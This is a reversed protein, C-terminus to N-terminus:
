GFGDIPLSKWTARLPFGAALKVGGRRSYIISSM